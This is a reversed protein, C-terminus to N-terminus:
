ARMDSLTVEPNHYRAYGPTKKGYQIAETPCWQICALCQECRGQWVPKKGEIVINGSPCVATCIACGNCKDDAWFNKDLKAVKSYSLKYFLGSLLLNQWLPGQEVPGVGGRAITGAIERIKIAAGSFLRHQTEVPAAGGWPIYNSPMVIDFGASLKLGRAEMLKKLQTLTAAVQGANVALAFYYKNAPLRNVFEVVRGPLGWIHVPFVLGIAEAGDHEPSGRRMSGLRADKLEAGLKRAAWLSNGTGTYYYISTKM